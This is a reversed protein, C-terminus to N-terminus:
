LLILNQSVEEEMLEAVLRVISRVVEGSLHHRPRCPPSPFSSSTIEEGCAPHIKTFNLHHPVKLHAGSEQKEKVRKSGERLLETKQVGRRELWQRGEGQDQEEFLETLEVRELLEEGGGCVGSRSRSRERKVFIEMEGRRDVEERGDDGVEGRVEEEEGVSVGGGGGGELLPDVREEGRILEIEMVRLEIEM